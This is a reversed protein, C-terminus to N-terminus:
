CAPTVCPNPIGLPFTKGKISDILNPPISNTRVACSPDADNAASTMPLIVPFGPKQMAVSPGPAVLRAVPTPLAYRSLDGIIAIV